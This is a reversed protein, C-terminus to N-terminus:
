HRLRLHRTSSPARGPSWMRCRSRRYTFSTVDDCHIAHFASVGFLFCFVLILILVYHIM